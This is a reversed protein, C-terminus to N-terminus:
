RRKLNSNDWKCDNMKLFEIDMTKLITSKKTSMPLLPFLSHYNITAVHMIQPNLDYKKANKTLHKFVCQYLITRGLEHFLIVTLCSWDMLLWWVVNSTDLVVTFAENIGYDEKNIAINSLVCVHMCTYM